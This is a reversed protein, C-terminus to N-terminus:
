QELRELVTLLDDLRRIVPFGAGAHAGQRDLLVAHLGAKTAGEVDDRVSDGVHLAEEPDVAHKELALQFIKPAPKAAHALSSITVTDFAEAIGLGRM